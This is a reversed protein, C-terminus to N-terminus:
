IRVGFFSIIATKGLLLIKKPKLKKITKIVKPRCFGIEKNDPTRNNPPRCFIANMKWCDADLDLGFYDLEDRLKQGAKGILQIGQEDENKGPAEAIVLIEKKGEGTYDMKPSLCNKYLGCLQCNDKKKEKIDFFGKM